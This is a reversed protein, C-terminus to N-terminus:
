HLARGGRRCGRTVRPIEVEQFATLGEDDPHTLAPGSLSCLRCARPVRPVAYAEDLPRAIRARSVSSSTDPGSRFAGPPPRSRAAPGEPTAAAVRGPGRPPTTATAHRTPAHRPRRPRPRRRDGGGPSGIADPDAERDLVELRGVRLQEALGNAVGRVRDSALDGIGNQSPKWWLCATGPARRRKEVGDLSEPSPSERSVEAAVENAVLVPVECGALGSRRGIGDASAWATWSWRAPAPMSSITHRPSWRRSTTPYPSAFAFIPDLRAM